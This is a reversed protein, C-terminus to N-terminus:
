DNFKRDFETTLEDMEIFEFDFNSYKFEINFTQSQAVPQTYDFELMDMSNIMPYFLSIRSYIEGIENFLDVSFRQPLDDYNMDRSFQYWFNEFLMFYNLYGLTHRFTINFTRDTLAIPSVSNRYNFESSAYLFKNQEIRKENLTPEAGRTSQNQQVTGNQFGLVNVKQITENLFDIPSLLYSHKKKLIEAYKEEVETVLFEKPLILRFGDQRGKLGFM